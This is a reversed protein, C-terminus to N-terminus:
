TKTEARLRQYSRATTGLWAEAWVAASVVPDAGKRVFHQELDENVEAAGASGGVCAREGAPPATEPPVKELEGEAVHGQVCDVSGELLDGAGGQGAEFYLDGLSV